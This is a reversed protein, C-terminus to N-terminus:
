GGGLQKVKDVIKAWVSKKMKRSPHHISKPPVIAPVYWHPRDSM